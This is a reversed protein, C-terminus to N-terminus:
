HTTATRAAELEKRAVAEDAHFKASGLLKAALAQGATKGADVDSPYHVGGTIRHRAFEGARKMLAEKRQPYMDTLVAAAMYAWTAHGSPYSKSGPKEICPTIKPDVVYPRTRAFKEKANEVVQGEFSTMRDFFQRVKRLELQQVSAPLGLADEAFRMPEIRADANARQCESPTRKAQIALMVDLEKRTEASDDKAPAKVVKSLDLDKPEIYYAPDPRPASGDAATAFPTAVLSLVLATAIRFSTANM